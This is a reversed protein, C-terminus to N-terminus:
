NGAAMLLNWRETDRAALANHWDFGGQPEAEVLLDVVGAVGQGIDPGFLRYRAYDLRKATPASVELLTPGEAEVRVTADDAGWAWLFEATIDCLLKAAADHDEQRGPHRRSLFDRHRPTLGDDAWLEFSHKPDRRM